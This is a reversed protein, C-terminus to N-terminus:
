KGTAMSLFQVGKKDGEATTPTTAAAGGAPNAQPARPLTGQTKSAKSHKDGLDPPHANMDEDKNDGTNSKDDFQSLQNATQNLFAIPDHPDKGAENLLFDILTQPVNSSDATLGTVEGKFETKILKLMIKMSGVVPGAKNWLAQLFSEPNQYKQSHAVKFEGLSVELIDLNYDSMNLKDDHSKADSNDARYDESEKNNTFPDPTKHSDEESETDALNISVEEIRAILAAGARRMKDESEKIKKENFKSSKKKNPDNGAMGEDTEGSELLMAKNYNSNLMRIGDITVREQNSKIQKSKSYEEEKSEEMEEETVKSKTTGIGFVSKALSKTTAV